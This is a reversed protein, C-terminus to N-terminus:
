YLLQVDYESVYLLLRSLHLTTNTLSIQFLPLLPKHDTITHTKRGFTFHKFHENEFVVGLTRKWHKLITDWCRLTIQKFLCCTKCAKFNKWRKKLSTQFIKILSIRTWPNSFLVAYVKRPPMVNLWYPIHFMMSSYLCDNSIANTIREFAETHSKLWFFDTNTKVLLQLPTRLSSLEPVFHSLYNVMLWINSPVPHDKITKVKNPDQQKGEASIHQEFFPVKSCNLRIESLNLKLDVKLCRELFTIM